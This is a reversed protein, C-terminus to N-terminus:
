YETNNRQLLGLATNPDIGDWNRQMNEDDEDKYSNSRMFLPLFSTENSRDSENSKEFYNYRKEQNEKINKLM